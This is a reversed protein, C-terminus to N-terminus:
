ACTSGNRDGGIVLKIKNQPTSKFENLNLTFRLYYTTSHIFVYIYTLYLCLLVHKVKWTIFLLLIQKM